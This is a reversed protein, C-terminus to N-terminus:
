LRASITSTHIYFKPCINVKRAQKYDCKTHQLTENLEKLSRQKVSEKKCTDLVKACCKMYCLCSKFVHNPKLGSHEDISMARSISWVSSKSSEQVYVLNETVFPLKYM